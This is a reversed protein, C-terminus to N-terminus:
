YGRHFVYIINEGVQKEILIAWSKDGPGDLFDCYRINIM